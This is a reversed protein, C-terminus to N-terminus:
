FMQKEPHKLTQIVHKKRVKEGLSHRIFRCRQDQVYLHDEDSFLVKRLENVGGKKYKLVWKYKRNRISSTSLQKKLPRRAPHGNELLRTRVTCSSVEVGALALDNKLANRTKKLDKKSQYEYLIFIDYKPRTKQKQMSNGKEKSNLSGTKAAKKVICSVRGQNRGVLKQM